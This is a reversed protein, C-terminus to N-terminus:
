RRRRLGPRRRPRHHINKAEATGHPVPQHRGKTGGKERSSVPRLTVPSGEIDQLEGTTLRVYGGTRIESDKIEVAVKIIPRAEKQNIVRRAALDGIFGTMEEESHEGTRMWRCYLIKEAEEGYANEGEGDADVAIHLRRYNTEDDADGIVSRQDWYVVVRSVRSDPNLDAAGSAHVNNAEDTLITYARGGRNPTNRAITIKLDEAVWTKCDLLDILEFYLDSLKTPESIIASLDIEGGPWGKADDFADTDIYDADIGADTQLMETNLIDFPNAWDYYRCPQLKDNADHSDAETEFAARTLSSLEGTTGNKAGYYIIEDGIRVYGTEDLDSADSVTLATDEADIAAVLKLDVKAPVYIKSLDKLLDVAEVSVKGKGLTIKDIKMYYRQQFNGEAMGLFGEYIELPRGKYHPNRALLKKWFTGGSAPGSM